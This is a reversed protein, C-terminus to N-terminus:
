DADRPLDKVPYGYYYKALPMNKEVPNLEQMKNYAM